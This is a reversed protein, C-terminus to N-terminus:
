EKGKNTDIRFPYATLFQMIWWCRGNDSVELAVVKDRADPRMNKYKDIYLNLDKNHGGKQEPFRAFASM